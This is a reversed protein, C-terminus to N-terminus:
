VHEKDKFLSTLIRMTWTLVYLTILTLGMGFVLLSFGYQWTTLEM